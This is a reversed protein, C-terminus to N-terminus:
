LPKGNMTAAIPSSVEHTLQWGAPRKTWTDQVRGDLVLVSNRGTQPDSFLLIAHKHLTVAAESGSKGLTLKEITSQTVTSKAPLAFTKLYDAREEKLDHTKGADSVGTFNPAYHALVIEIDKSMFAADRATYDSQLTKQIDAAGAQAIASITGLSLLLATKLFSPRLSSTKLSSHHMTKGEKSSQFHKEGPVENTGGQVFHM